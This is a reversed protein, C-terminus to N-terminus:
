LTKLQYSWPCNAHPNKACNLKAVNNHYQKSLNCCQQLMAVIHQALFRQQSDDRTVDGKIFQTSLTTPWRRSVLCFSVNRASATRWLSDSPLTSRTHNWYVSPQLWTIPPFVSRSLCSDVIQTYLTQQNELNGNFKREISSLDYRWKFNTNGWNVDDEHKWQTKMAWITSYKLALASAM